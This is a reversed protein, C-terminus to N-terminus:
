APVSLRTSLHVPPHTPTGGRGSSSGLPLLLCALRTAIRPQPQPHVRAQLLPPPLLLRHLLLRHPPGAVRPALPHAPPLPEQANGPGTLDDDQLSPPLRCLLPPVLSGTSLAPGPCPADRPEAGAWGLPPGHPWPGLGPWATPASLWAVGLAPRQAEPGWNTGASPFAAQTFTSRSM